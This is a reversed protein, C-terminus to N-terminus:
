PHFRRLCLTLLHAAAFFGFSGTVMLSAGFGTACNLARPSVKPRQLGISGDEQPYRLQELSYVCPIGFKKKTDRSFGHKKRLEYRVKAMLPDQEVQSLDALRIQTPDIQGGAGGTSVIPIKRRVAWQLLAAKAPVADIADVIGDIHEPFHQAPDDATIFADIIDVRIEPNIQKLREAMVDNKMEGITPELTHIQRNTNSICIDDMDVLILHGVGSRALAEASWSGVGGIGAVVLTLSSLYTLEAQGYLREIGGFRKQYLESTM